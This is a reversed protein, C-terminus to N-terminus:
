PFIEIGVLAGGNDTYLHVIQNGDATRFVQTRSTRADGFRIGLAYSAKTDDSVGGGDLQRVHDDMQISM